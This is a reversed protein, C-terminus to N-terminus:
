QTVSITGPNSAEGALTLILQYTGTKLASPVVIDM